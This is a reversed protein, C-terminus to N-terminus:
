AVGDKVGEIRIEEVPLASANLASDFRVWLYGSRDDPPNHAVCGLPTGDESFAVWVATPVPIVRATKTM